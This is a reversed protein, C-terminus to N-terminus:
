FLQREALMAFVEKATAAVDTTMVCHLAIAALCFLTALFVTLSGRHKIDLLWSNEPATFDYVVKVPNELDRGRKKWLGHTEGDMGKYTMGLANFEYEYSHSKFCTLFFFKQTTIRHRTITGETQRTATDNRLVKKRNEKLAIFVALAAMLAFHFLIKGPNESGGLQVLAVLVFAALGLAAGVFYGKRKAAGNKKDKRTIFYVAAAQAALAVLLAAPFFIFRGLGFMVLAGAVIWVLKLFHSGQTKSNEGAFHSASEELRSFIEKSNKLVDKLSFVVAVAAVIIICLCFILPLFTFFDSGM